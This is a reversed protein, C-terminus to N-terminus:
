TGCTAPRSSARKRSAVLTPVASAQLEGASYVKMFKYTEAWITVAVPAQQLAQLGSCDSPAIREQPHLETSLSKAPVHLSQSHPQCQAACKFSRCSSQQCAHGAHPWPSSELVGCAALAGVGVWGGVVVLAVAHMDFIATSRGGHGGGGGGARPVHACVRVRAIRQERMCARVCAHVALAGM